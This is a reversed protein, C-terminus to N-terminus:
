FNDTISADGLDQPARNSTCVIIAGMSVMHSFVGELLTSSAFDALQIEDFCLLWADQM